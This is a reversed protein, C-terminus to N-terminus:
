VPLQKEARSARWGTARQYARIELDSIFYSRALRRGAAQKEAESADPNGQVTSVNKALQELYLEVSRRWQDNELLLDLRGDCRSRLDLVDDEGLLRRISAESDVNLRSVLEEGLQERVARDATVRLHYHDANWCEAGLLEGLKAEWAQHMRECLAANEESSCEACLDELSAQIRDQWRRLAQDLYLERLADLPAAILTRDCARQALEHAAKASASHEAPASARKIRAALRRAEHEILAGSGRRGSGLVRQFPDSTQGRGM